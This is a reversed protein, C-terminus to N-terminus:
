GPLIAARDVTGHRDSHFEDPVPYRAVGDVGRYVGAHDFCQDEDRRGVADVGSRERSRIAVFFIWIGLVRLSVELLIRASM